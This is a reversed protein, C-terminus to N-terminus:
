NIKFRIIKVVIYCHSHLKQNGVLIWHKYNPDKLRYNDELKLHHAKNTRDKRM